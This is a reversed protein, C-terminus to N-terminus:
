KMLKVDLVAEPPVRFEREGKKYVIDPHTMDVKAKVIGINNMKAKQFNKIFKKEDTIFFVPSVRINSYSLYCRYLSVTDILNEPPYAKLFPCKRGSEIDINERRAWDVIQNWKLKGDFIMKVEKFARVIDQVIKFDSSFSIGETAGGLGLRYGKDKFGNQALEKAYLSAHYLTEIKDYSPIYGPGGRFESETEMDLIKDLESFKSKLDKHFKEFSNFVPFVSQILDHIELGYKDNDDKAYKFNTKLRDQSEKYIERFDKIFTKILDISLYDQKLSTRLSKLITKYLSKISSDDSDHYKILEKLDIKIRNIYGNNISDRVVTYNIFESVDDIAYESGLFDTMYYRFDDNKSLKDINNKLNNIDNELKTIQKLKIKYYKLMDRPAHQIKEDLINIIYKATTIMIIGTNEVL